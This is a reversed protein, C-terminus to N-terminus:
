NKLMNRYIKRVFKWLFDVNEGFSRYKEGFGDSESELIYLCFQIFRCDRVGM